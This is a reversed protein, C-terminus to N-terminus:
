SQDTEAGDATSAPGTSALLEGPVDPAEGGKDPMGIGRCASRYTDCYSTIGKQSEASLMAHVIARSLTDAGTGFIENLQRTDAPDNITLPDGAGTSMGFVTDGDSLTHVPNIERALGNNAVAAFKEAAAKELPADTAVVAITTNKMPDADWSQTASAQSRMCESKSPTRLRGFEDGVELRAGLLTCDAPDLPSGAANVVVLAGVTYGSELTISATGVGGKLGGARAGTGGGVAGELVPGDTAADMASAGWDATPRSAFDGGRNLDFIVAGPVIPVVGAGVNVGEGREELWAMVGSTTDLGYASGGTLVVANTGPNSNLPSLLDTEKTGPAGGGQDVGTVAVDPTYVVTTGTLYGEATSQVQGIQIGDVDTIANHEGPEGPEAAAAIGGLPAVGLALGATVAVGAVSGRRIWHRPSRTRMTM